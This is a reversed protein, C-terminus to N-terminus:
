DVRAGRSHGQVRNRRRRVVRRRRKFTGGAFFFRDRDLDVFAGFGFARRDRARFGRDARPFPPRGAGRGQQDVAYVRGDGVLRAREAVPFAFARRDFEDHVRLRRRDGEGCDFRRRVVRGRREAPGSAFGFRHGDVYVFAGFGFASGDGRDFRRDRPGFPARHARRRRQGAP